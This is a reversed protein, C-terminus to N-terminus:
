LVSEELTELFGADGSCEQCVKHKRCLAAGCSECFLEAEGGCCACETETLVESPMLM